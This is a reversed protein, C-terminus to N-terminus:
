HVQHRCYIKKAIHSRAAAYGPSVLPYDRPLGYRSRYEDPTIGHASLHRKISKYEKGDIFSVLRDYRISDAIESKSRPAHTRDPLTKTQLSMLASYICKIMMPMDASTVANRSVYAAALAATLTMMSASKSGSTAISM